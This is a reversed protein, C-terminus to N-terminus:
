EEECIFCYGYDNNNIYFDKYRDNYNYRLM